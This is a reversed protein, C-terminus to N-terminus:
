LRFFLDERFTDGAMASLDRNTAAIIRVDASHERPAGVPWFTGRALFRLLKAQAALPLEGIEDLFLTGKDALEAFGAKADVAGTYAGRNHGFFESEFLGPAIAACNVAVFRGARGSHCHIDEALVDKGVGTAGVILVPCSSATIRRALALASERGPSAAIFAWQEVRHSSVFCPKM